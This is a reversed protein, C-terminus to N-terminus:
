LLALTNMESQKFKGLHFINVDRSHVHSFDHQCRESGSM